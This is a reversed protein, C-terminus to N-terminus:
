CSSSSWWSPPSLVCRTSFDLGVVLGAFLGRGGEVLLDVREGKASLALRDGLWWLWTVEFWLVGSYTVKLSVHNDCVSSSTYLFTFEDNITWWTNILLYQDAHISWCTNILMYQCWTNILMYQDAHISWCTNILMYQDAHISMMYQDAHISWCTNILMYQNVHISMMYQDAHISWCTNIM